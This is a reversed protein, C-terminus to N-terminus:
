EPDRGLLPLIHHSAQSSTELARHCASSLSSVPLWSVPLRSRRESESVGAVPEAYGGGRHAALHEDNPPQAAGGGGPPGGRYSPRLRARRVQGQGGDSGAVRATSAAGPGGARAPSGGARPRERTPLHPLKRRTPLLRSPWGGADRRRSMRL